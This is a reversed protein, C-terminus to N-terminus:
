NGANVPQQLSEKLLADLDVANIKATALQSAKDQVQRLKALALHLPERRHKPFFDAMAELMANAASELGDGGGIAEAFAVGDVGREKAQTECAAFLVDVMLEPDTGLRMLAAKDEVASLLDFNTAAKVRKVTNVTVSVVWDKGNTDKFTKM